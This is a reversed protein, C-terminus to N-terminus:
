QIKSQKVDSNIAKDCSFPLTWNLVIKVIYKLWSKSTAARQWPWIQRFETKNDINQKSIKVTKSFVRKWNIAM